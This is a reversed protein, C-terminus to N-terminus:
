AGVMANVNRSDPRANFQLARFGQPKRSGDKNYRSPWIVMPHIGLADAIRQEAAPSSHSLAFSLSSASGLQNEAAISALTKGQKHLAAKIDAPHWDPTKQSAKKPLNTTM